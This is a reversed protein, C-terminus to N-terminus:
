ARNQTALTASPLGQSDRVGTQWAMRLKDGIARHASNENFYRTVDPALKALVDAAQEIIHNIVQLSLDCRTQGLRTLAKRVPWNTSGNLTLAMGDKPAYPLTSVLDYIPALRAPGTVDEHIVGFNKLHADRPECRLGAAIASM